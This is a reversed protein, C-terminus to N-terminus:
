RLFKWSTCLFVLVILSSKEFCIIDEVSRGDSVWASVRVWVCVRNPKQKQFLGNWFLQSSNTKHPMHGSLLMSWIHLYSMQMMKMHEIMIMLEDTKNLNVCRDQSKVPMQSAWQPSSSGWMPLLAGGREEGVNGIYNKAAFKNDFAPLFGWGYLM